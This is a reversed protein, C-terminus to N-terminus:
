PKMCILALFEFCLTWCWGFLGIGVPNSKVVVVWQVKRFWIPSMRVSCGVASFAFFVWLGFEGAWCGPAPVAEGDQSTMVGIWVFGQIRRVSSSNSFLQFDWDNSIRLSQSNWNIECMKGQGGIMPHSNSGNSPIKYGMPPAFHVIGTTFHWMKPRFDLCPAKWITTIKLKIFWRDDQSGYWSSGTDFEWGKPTPCQHCSIWGDAMQELSSTLKVEGVPRTWHDLFFVM